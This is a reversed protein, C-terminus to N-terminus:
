NNEIENVAQQLDHTICDINDLTTERGISLRLANKAISEPVGIALLIPSPRNQSHCAAGISAQLLKCHSLIRHGELHYGIISVNCTNPLRESCSFKGNFQIRDKFVEQLKDELYDRLRLM